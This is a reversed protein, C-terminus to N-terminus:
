NTLAEHANALTNEDTPGRCWSSVEETIRSRITKKTSRQSGVLSCMRELPPRSLGEVPHCGCLFKGFRQLSSTAPM